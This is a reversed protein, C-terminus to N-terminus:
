EHLPRVSAPSEREFGAPPPALLDRPRDDNDGVVRACSALVAIVALITVHLTGSGDAVEDLHSLDGGLSKGQTVGVDAPGELLQPYGTLEETQAVGDIRPRDHEDEVDGGFLEWPESEMGGAIPNAVLEAEALTRDVPAVPREGPRDPVVLM